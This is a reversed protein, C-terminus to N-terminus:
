AVPVLKLKGCAALHDDKIVVAGTIGEIGTAFEAARQIDEKSKVLNAAATAVADALTASPSLIVAADANGFSLSPGVTGSSTCIGLPTDEPRVELAIRNSLPSRGAFIGIRRKVASRMYIDGGNEVIVDRSRRALARGIHQAFAGAVAAMPGVGALSAAKAMDVAIPPATPKLPCPVLSHLFQPDEEIYKELLARQKRVMEEVWRVLEPSFRERRVGIDLDTQQVVVQFHILDDQRFLRRYTREKYEM